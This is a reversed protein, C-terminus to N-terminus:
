RILLKTLITVARFNSAIEYIKPFFSSEELKGIAKVSENKVCVPKIIIKDLIPTIKILIAM